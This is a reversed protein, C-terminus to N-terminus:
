RNARVYDTFFSKLLQDINNAVAAGLAEGAVGSATAHAPGWM